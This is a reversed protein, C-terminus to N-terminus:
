SVVGPFVKVQELPSERLLELLQPDIRQNVINDHGDIVGCERMMKFLVQRAKAKTQSSAGNLNNQWEAKANFFADYDQQSVHFRATQLQHSLVEVAFDRILIYHRCISLWVLQKQASDTGTVLLKMESENLHTLRRAVEGYLKRLTSATRTQFTNHELVHKKVSGWDTFEVKLSAVSVSELILAAGTTFSLSYKDNVM